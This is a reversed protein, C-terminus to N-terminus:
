IQRSERKQSLCGASCVDYRGDERGHGARFDVCERSSRGIGGTLLNLLQGGLQGPQSRDRIPNLKYMSFIRGYGACGVDDGVATLDTRDVRLHYSM